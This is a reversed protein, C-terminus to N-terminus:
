TTRNLCWSFLEMLPMLRNTHFMYNRNERISSFTAVIKIVLSLLKGLQKIEHKHCTSVRKCIEILLPILKLKRMLHLDGHNKKELVKIIDTLIAEVVEYNQIIPFISKELEISRIQLRKKHVSTLEKGPYTSANEHSVALGIIQLKIRKVKRKLAKEKEKLLEPKIDGPTSQFVIMSLSCDESEKIQLDERRKLHPKLSFHSEECVVDCLRCYKFNVEEKELFRLIKEAEPLDFLISKQSENM